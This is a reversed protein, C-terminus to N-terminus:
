LQNTDPQWDGIVAPELADTEDISATFAVSFEVM